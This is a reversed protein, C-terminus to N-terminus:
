LPPLYGLRQYWARYDGNAEEGYPRRRAKLFNEKLSQPIDEESIRLIQREISNDKENKGVAGLQNRVAWTDYRDTESNYRLLPETHNTSTSATINLHEVAASNEYTFCLSLQHHFDQKERGDDWTVRSWQRLWPGSTTSNIHEWTANTGLAGSDYDAPGPPLPTYRDKPDAAKCLLWDKLMPLNIGDQFIPCIFPFSYQDEDHKWMDDGVYHPINSLDATVNACIFYANSELDFCFRARIEPRVCAVRTDIVRAMGKFSRLNEREAQVTIPLFARLTTGTDDFDKGFRGPHSYEAFMESLVPKKDWYNNALGLVPLYKLEPDQVQELTFGYSMTKSFSSIRSEQLDTVLLTSTFQSAMTLLLLVVMLVRLWAKFTTGPLLKKFSQPGNNTFRAISIEAVACRPVGHCEAAISAAMSTTVTALSGIAWRILVGMSTIAQTSRGSLMVRRWSVGEHDEFWLWSLFGLAVMLALLSSAIIFWVGWSIKKTSNGPESPITTTSDVDPSESQGESPPTHPHHHPLNHTGVDDQNSNKPYQDPLFHQRIM